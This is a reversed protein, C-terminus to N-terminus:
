NPNTPPRHKPDRLYRILRVTDYILRVVMVAAGLVFMVNAQSLLGVGAVFYSTLSSATNEFIQNM